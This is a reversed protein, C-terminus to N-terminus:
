AALDAREVTLTALPQASCEVRDVRVEPAQEGREESAALRMMPDFVSSLKDPPIQVGHNNVTIVIQGGDRRM